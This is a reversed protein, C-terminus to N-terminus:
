GDAARLLEAVHLPATALSAASLVDGATLEERAEYAGDRPGRHVVVRRGDLDVVWYELVGANAYLETKIGLDRALSSIAVEIVLAATAAHYPSPTGRRVVSLDPEPESDALTLPCGVGVEHTADDVNAVLWRTLWRIAREHRPTKPSMRLLLGELLEVHADDDFAGLEVLQHYADLTYRHVEDLPVNATVAVRRLIRRAAISAADM